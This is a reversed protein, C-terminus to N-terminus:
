SRDAYEYAKILNYVVEPSFLPNRVRIDFDKFYKFDKEDARLRREVRDADSRNDLRLKRIDIPIDFFVVVCDKRDRKPIQKVGSPTMIFVDKNEWSNRSTGYHWGNFQVSEFFANNNEMDWYENSTIFNYTENDIEGERPPRTSYSIDVDLKKKIFDRFFDKGGAAKSVLIIRM